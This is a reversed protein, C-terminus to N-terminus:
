SGESNKPLNINMLIKPVQLKLSWSIQLRRLVVCFCLTKTYHPLAFLDYNHQQHSLNSSIPLYVSSLSYHMILHIQESTVFTCWSKPKCILLSDVLSLLFLPDHFRVKFLRLIFHIFMFDCPPKKTKCISKCLLL